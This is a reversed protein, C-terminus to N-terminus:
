FAADMADVEDAPADLDHIEGISPAAPHGPEEAFTLVAWHALTVAKLPAVPAGSEDEDWVIDGRPLTRTVVGGVADELITQGVHTIDGALVSDIFGQTAVALQPTNTVVMEIGQNRMFPAIPAAKSKADVAVAVPNWLEILELLAAAVQGINAVQWYGVEVHVRGASTRQAAAICWWRQDLTREVVLCVDGVLDPMLDLGDAWSEPPIVPEIDAEDPPWDGWGLYDADFIARMTATRARRFERGVERARVTVGHSPQALRWAEPDDRAMGEPAAWEAAYLDPEGRLGNRRMGAFVTCNPHLEEVAATSIFITQPNASANQAGTLDGTHTDRIDYGEDFIALDILTQGRGPSNARPGMSLSGGNRTFVRGHNGAESFGHPAGPMAKLRREL